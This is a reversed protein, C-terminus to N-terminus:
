SFNFENEWIKENEDDNKGQNILFTRFFPDFKKRRYIKMFLEMYGLKSISLEFILSMKEYKKMMKLNAEIKWFHGLFHTLKKKGYIKMFLKMCGLKSTSFEFVSDMKGYKEDEKENKGQNTM